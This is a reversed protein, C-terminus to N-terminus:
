LLFLVDAICADEEERRVFLATETPARSLIERGIPVVHGASVMHQAASKESPM